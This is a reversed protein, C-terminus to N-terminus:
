KSIVEKMKLVVVQMQPELHTIGLVIRGQPAIVRVVTVDVRRHLFGSRNVTTGMVGSNLFYTGPALNMRLRFSVQVTCGSEVRDLHQNESMSNIGAVEIGDATKFMVGFKVDQASEHFRVQYRWSYTEGVILVNVPQESEDYMGIDFIEAEGGGYTIEPAKPINPDFTPVPPTALWHSVAMPSGTLPAIAQLLTEVPQKSRLIVLTEQQQRSTGYIFRQYVDTVQKSPGDLILQGAHLFL